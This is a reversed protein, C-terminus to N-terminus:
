EDRMAGSWFGAELRVTTRFDRLLMAYRAGGGRRESLANLRVIGAEALCTYVPGSYTEIWSWYPNGDRRTAPDALLTLGVEAYGALCASLAVTLDLLDGANARDMIFGGYALTELSPSTAELAAEDLGWDRCYALHLGLESLVLGSVTGAAARMDDLTDAKVVAMACARAYQLLYLYDQVLFRKFCALPLTGDGLGRVFRHQVYAAWEGAADRRLRGFLGSELSPLAAHLSPHLAANLAAHPTQTM